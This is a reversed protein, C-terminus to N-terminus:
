ILQRRSENNNTATESLFQHALTIKFTTGVGDESCFDLSGDHLTIIKRALPLGLGSGSPSGSFFPTFVNEHHKEPIGPGNDTIHIRMGEDDMLDITVEGGDIAVAKCANDLINSFAQKLLLEDGVLLTHTSAVLNLHLHVNPYVTHLLGIIEELTQYVDFEAYVPHLPKAFDLFRAVLTEVERAEKLLSEANQRMPSDVTNKRSILNAFGVMAAASNRLQHALGASMEGLSALRRKLELEDQLKLLATQDNLLLSLGILGGDRDILDSVSVALIRDGNGPEPIHVQMNHVPVGSEFFTQLLADLDAFEGLIQCYSKGKCKTGTLHLLEEAARNISSINRELDFTLIGTPISRLIYDNYVELNEARKTVIRNLRVLEEEKSRLENIIQEYSSILESVEDDANSNFRGTEEAKQRLRVFPDMVLQAFRGAVYIIIIIGLVAFFILIKGANELSGLLSNKDAISIVYNSGAFEAPFLLHTKIDGSSHLYVPQNQLLARLQEATPDIEIYALMSDMPDGKQIAMVRAYNLHIVYLYDLDYTYEIDAILSDPLITTAQKLIANSVVVAAESLRDEVRDEISQRVRHLTYHSAFNLIVLVLVILALGL